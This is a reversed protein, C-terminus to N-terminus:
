WQCIEEELGDEEQCGIRYRYLWDYQGIQGCKIRPVCMKDKAVGEVILDACISDNDDCDNNTM